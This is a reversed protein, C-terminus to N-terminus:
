EEEREEEEFPRDDVRDAFDRCVEEDYDNLCLEEYLRKERKSWKTM